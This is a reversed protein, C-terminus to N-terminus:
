FRPFCCFMGFIIFFPKEVKNELTQMAVFTGVSIQDNNQVSHCIAKIIHIYVVCFLCSLM